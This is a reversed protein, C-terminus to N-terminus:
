LPPSLSRRIPAATAARPPSGASKRTAVLTSAFPRRSSRRGRGPWRRRTGPAARAPGAAAPRGARGRTGRSRRATPGRRRRRSGSPAARRPRRDAVDPQGAAGDRLHLAVEGEAAELHQQHVVAPGEDVAARGLQQGLGLVEADRQDVGGDVAAADQGLGAAGGLVAVALGARHGQGGDLGHRPTQASCPVSRAVAASCAETRSGRTLVVTTPSLRGARSSASSSARRELHVQRRGRRRARPAGGGARASAPSGARRVGLEVVAAVRQGGLLGM